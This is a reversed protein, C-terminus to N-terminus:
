TTHHGPPNPATISGRERLPMPTRHVGGIRQPHLLLEVGRRGLALHPIAISTLGPQLWGALDSDDFSVVSLDGPIFLGLDQAAQYAGMAVRDNLCILASPRHGAVLHARVAQYAPEPWWATPITGALHLGNATLAQDIGTRREAAAIVQPPTEGVVVIRDRHGHRLLVRVATRGAELEDPVVMPVGPARGICNVLVTPRTRLETPIRVHQTYMSAILFGSVGRDIMGHILQTQVRRDGGTEGVLLLHDHLLATTLAGRIVEGAFADSTIRDSLLGLTSTKNTRLSRALMNPRYDLERAARLVRQETDASIRM